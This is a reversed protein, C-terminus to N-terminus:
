AKGGWCPRWGAPCTSGSAISAPPLSKSGSVKRLGAEGSVPICALAPRMKSFSPRTTKLAGCNKKVGSSFPPCGRRSGPSLRLQSKEPQLGLLAALIAGTTGEVKDWVAEEPSGSSHFWGLRSEVFWVGPSEKGTSASATGEGIAGTTNTSGTPAETDPGSCWESERRSAMAGNDHSKGRVLRKDMGAASGGFDAILRRDKRRDVGGPNAKGPGIAKGQDGRSADLKFSEHYFYLM